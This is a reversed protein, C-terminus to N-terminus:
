STKRLESLARSLDMSARRLAGTEKSGGIPWHEDSPHRKEVDGAIELFRKIEAMVDSSSAMAKWKRFSSRRSASRAIRRGSTSGSSGRMWAVTVASRQASGIAGALPQQTTGDVVQGSVTGAQAWAATPALAALTLLVAFHRTFSM